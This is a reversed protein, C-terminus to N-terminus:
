PAEVGYHVEVISYTVKGQPTEVSAEDGESKGILGRAIPSKFSILRQEVDAQDEGVIRWQREEGSDINEIKVWCGFVVRDSKPVRTIDIVEATALMGELLRIYADCEAQRAKADEFESNESIDGHARAEEIDRVIQLREISKKHHLKATLTAHGEPTVPNRTM